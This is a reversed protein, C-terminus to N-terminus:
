TTEKFFGQHTAMREILARKYEIAKCKLYERNIKDGRRIASRTQQDPQWFQNTIMSGSGSM